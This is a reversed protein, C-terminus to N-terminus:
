RTSRNLSLSLTPTHSLTFPPPLRSRV